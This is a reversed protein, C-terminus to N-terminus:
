SCDASIPFSKGVKVYAASLFLCQPRVISCRVGNAICSYVGFSVGFIL